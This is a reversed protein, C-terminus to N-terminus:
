ARWSTPSRSPRASASRCRRTRTPAAPSRRRSSSTARCRAWRPSCASTASARARAAARGHARAHAALDHRHRRPAANVARAMGECRPLQGSHTLDMQLPTVSVRRNAVAHFDTGPGADARRRGRRDLVRDRRAPDADEGGARGQPAQGAAHSRHRALAGPAVDPVNVNLLVPEGFPARSCASWWDAARRQDREHRFARRHTSALSIALSPIGLLYGETAAAVTGSYITDDGM